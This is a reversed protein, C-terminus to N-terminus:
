GPGVKPIDHHESLTDLFSNYDKLKDRYSKESMKQIKEKKRLKQILEFKKESETKTSRIEQLSSEMSKPQDIPQLNSEEVIQQEVYEEEEKEEKKEKKQKKNKKDKKRKKKEKKKSKRKKSSTLASSGKLKLKSEVVNDFEEGDM